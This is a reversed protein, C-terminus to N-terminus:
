LGKFTVKELTWKVEQFHLRYEIIYSQLEYLAMILIPRHILLDLCAENHVEDFDDRKDWERLRSTLNSNPRARAKRSILEVEHYCSTVAVGELM